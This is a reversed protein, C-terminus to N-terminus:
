LWVEHRSRSGRARGDILVASRRADWGFSAGTYPNRLDTADIARAADSGGVGAGRLSQALVAARRLAELDAVRFLYDRLAFELGTSALANGIPNYAHWLTRERQWAAFRADVAAPLRDGPLESLEGLAVLTAAYRNSTAQVRLLPRSLRDALSARPRTPTTGAGQAAGAASARLAADAFRWEGAFARMMSRERVSFPRSWSPPLADGGPHPLARLALNGLDFHREIAGSAIMRTILVDSSALVVRWFELDADLRQRVAAVDGARALERTQLLYLTQADLAGQMLPMPALADLPVVERWARRTLLQAYRALPVAAADRWAPLVDPEAQLLRECDPGGHACAEALRKAAPARAAREDVDTGPMAKGRADAVHRDLWARRQTGLTLPDSGDPAAFGLMYVYGNAADAVPARAAVMAELRRADASPPQDRWNIAVLVGYAVVPALVLGGVV